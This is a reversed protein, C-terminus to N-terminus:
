ECKLHECTLFQQTHDNKKVRQEQNHFSTEFIPIAIYGVLYVQVHGDQLDDASCVSAESPQCIAKPVRTGFYSVM